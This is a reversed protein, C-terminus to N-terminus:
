DTKCLFVFDSLILIKEKLASLERIETVRGFTDGMIAILMNLITISTIFTSLIFFFWLVKSSDDQGDLNFNDLNFEGLSLLYQNLISDVARNKFAQSIVSSEDDEANRNMNLCHIANAFM